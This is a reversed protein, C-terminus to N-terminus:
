SQVGWTIESRDSISALTAAFTHDNELGGFDHLLRLDIAQLFGGLARKM